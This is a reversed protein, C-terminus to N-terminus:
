QCSGGACARYLADAPTGDPKYSAYERTVDRAWHDPLRVGESLSVIVFVARRSGGAPPDESPDVSRVEVSPDNAWLLRVANATTSPGPTVLVLGEPRRRREARLFEVSERSGYGSPWGTVYQFRDLTPFPAQAPDTWLARDFRLAPAVVAAFLSAVLVGAMVRGRPAHRLVLRAVAVFGLAALPLLPVTTLLLYRPYWIGSIAVFAIAPGLTVLALLLVARRQETRAAGILLGM